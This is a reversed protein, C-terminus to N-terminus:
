QFLTGAFTGATIAVLSWALSLGMAPGVAGTSLTILTANVMFWLQFQSRVTGHRETEPIYDYSRAEITTKELALGPEATTNNKM